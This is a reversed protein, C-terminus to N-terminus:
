TVPPEGVADRRELDELLRETERWTFNDIIFGQRANHLTGPYAVGKGKALSKFVANIEEHSLCQYM